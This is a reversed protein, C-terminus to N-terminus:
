LEEEEYFMKLAAYQGLQHQVLENPPLQSLQSHLGSKTSRRETASVKQILYNYKRAILAWNYRRDAVSKMTLGLAVLAYAMGQTLGNLLQQLLLETM